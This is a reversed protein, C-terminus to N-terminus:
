VYGDEPRAIGQNVVGVFDPMCEEELLLHVPEHDPLPPCAGARCYQYLAARDRMPASGNGPLTPFVFQSKITHGPILMPGVLGATLGLNLRSEWQKASPVQGQGEAPQTSTAM